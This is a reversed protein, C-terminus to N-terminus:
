NFMLKSVPVQYQKAFCHLLFKTKSGLESGESGHFEGYAFTPRSFSNSFARSDRLPSFTLIKSSAVVILTVSLKTRWLMGKRLSFLYCTAQLFYILIAKEPNYPIGSINRMPLFKLNIEAFIHEDGLQLGQLATEFKRIERQLDEKIWSEGWVACLDSYPQHCQLM